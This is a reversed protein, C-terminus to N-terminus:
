RRAAVRDGRHLPRVPSHEAGSRQIAQACSLAALGDHGSAAPEGTGRVSALFREWEVVLPERRTIAFRTVDGEGTGRLNALSDWENDARPNDYFLLDQTLYNVVFLGAETTVTLERVKTPTLWNVELLGTSGSSLRLSASLLDEPGDGSRCLTEAYVRDVESGTLYRIIDIDHTALDHAVGTMSERLPFPSLRRAHVQYIQGFDGGDLRDKLAIVAPNCREVHGVALSLDLAGARAVLSAAADEAPAMPKEVLTALGADLAQHALDPLVDVPAAICAFDAETRALADGFAAFGPAGTRATRRREENPDVVGVIEIGSEASLVRLHYSGMTGLGVLIGRLPPPEPM